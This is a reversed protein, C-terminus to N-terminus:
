INYILESVESEFLELWVLFVAALCFGVNEDPKKESKEEIEPM